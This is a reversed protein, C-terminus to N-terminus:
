QQIYIYHISEKPIKNDSFVTNVVDNFTKEDYVPKSNFKIDFGKKIKKWIENYKVLITDGEIKFPIM